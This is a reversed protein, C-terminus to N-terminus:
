DVLPRPRRIPPGSITPQVGARVSLEFHGPSLRVAARAVSGYRFLTARASPSRNKRESSRDIWIIVPCFDANRYGDTTGHHGPFKM